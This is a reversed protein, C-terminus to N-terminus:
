PRSRALADGHCPPGRCQSAISGCAYPPSRWTEARGEATRAEQCRASGHDGRIHDCRLAPHCWDLFSVCLLGRRLVADLAPRYLVNILASAIALAILATKCSRLSAALEQGPKAGTDGAPRGRSITSMSM